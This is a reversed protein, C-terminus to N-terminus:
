FSLLRKAKIDGQINREGLGIFQAKEDYLRVCDVEGVGIKNTVVRGQRISVVEDDLLTVQAFHNVARDMPVLCDMRESVSMAELEDLSYMPMTDLGSTYVRHLRTVHAGVGLVDGIDEVLNRIYTGKSCTVTLSFQIGDFATLQLNSILIERAEREINIGERAFRYLPKGNHKLASFMSPIQKIYGTHQILADLLQEESITFADVRAIVEGTADATNTKIGLLGTTEYCKDADLLFQCVKTAEGFCLPLMGTALPDLSGTHGAKQAGLLRKARQLAKNSTMGESKNLLLIGDLALSKNAKM